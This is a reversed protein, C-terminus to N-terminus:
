VYEQKRQPESRDGVARRMNLGFPGGPIARFQGAANRPIGYKGM